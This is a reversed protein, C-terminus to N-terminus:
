LNEEMSSRKRWITGPFELQKPKRLETEEVQCPQPARSPNRRVARLVPFQRRCFTASSVVPSVKNNEM